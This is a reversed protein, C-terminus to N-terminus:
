CAEIRKTAMQYYKKDLEIGIFNRMTNCAAVGASGSGMTLDVVVDGVNSFTKILDELLLIPKQTPHHGNNDKAYTLINGKYKGGEWLNFTSGYKIKYKADIERLEEFTEEFEIFDALFDYMKGNMLDFRMGENFGFKYSAHVKASLEGSYRGETLFLKTLYGKGYKEVYKAMIARLPHKSIPCQDKSFVLIDEYFGVMNVKAGLPNAFTNKEWIARYGFPVNPIAENILKNTYPEQSFLVMKGNKRLIRNAIKYVQKPEITLDWGNIGLKRGGDTNMNGYPLDSLILDVSGDEILENKDLCDGHLLVPKSVLRQVNVAQPQPNEITQKEFLPQQM